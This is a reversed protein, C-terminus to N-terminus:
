WTRKDYIRNYRQFREQDALEWARHSLKVWMTKKTTLKDISEMTLRGSEIFGDLTWRKMIEMDERNMHLPDFIGGYEVCSTNFFLLLSHEDKSMTALQM